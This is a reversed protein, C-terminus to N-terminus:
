RTVTPDRGLAVAKVALALVPAPDHVSFVAHVVDRRPLFGALWEGVRGQALSWALARVDRHELRYHVGTRYPGISGRDVRGRMTDIWIAPLNVGAATALAMSTFIRPNFDILHVGDGDEILDVQFIGCWGIARLLASLAAELEPDPAVTSAATYTGCRPPWIRTAATHVAVVIGDDDAVGSVGRLTGELYDQVIADGPPLHALESRVGDEDGVPPRPGHHQLVGEVDPLESRRAKVVVPYRLGDLREGLDEAAADAAPVVSAPVSIGLTAALEAVRVKDLALDVVQGRNRPATVGAPVPAPHRAFAVLARESAPLIVTAGTSEAAAITATVFGEGDVAPDPVDVVGGVVRSCTAVGRRPAALWPDYGALHLARVTALVGVDVAGVVLVRERGHPTAVRGRAGSEVM